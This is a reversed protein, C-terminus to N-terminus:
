LDLLWVTPVGETAAWLKGDSVSNFASAPPPAPATAARKATFRMAGNAGFVGAGGVTHDPDVVSREFLISDRAVVGRFSIVRGGQPSNAKFIITDGRAVGDHISAPLTIGGSQQVSGNVSAGSVLLTITWPAFTVGEVQWTGMARWAQAAVLGPVISLAIAF